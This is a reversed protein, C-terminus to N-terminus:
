ARAPLKTQLSILIVAPMALRRGESKTRVQKRCCSKIKHAGWDSKVADGVAVRDLLRASPEVGVANRIGEMIELLRSEVGAQHFGPELVNRPVGQDIAFAGGPAAQRVFALGADAVVGAGSRQHDLQGGDDLARHQLGAVALRGVDAEAGIEILLNELVSQGM